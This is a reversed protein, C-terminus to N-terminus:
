NSNFARTSNSFAKYGYHVGGATYLDHFIFGDSDGGVGALFGADKAQISGAVDLKHAPTTSGIGVRQNAFDFKTLTHHVSAADSSSFGVINLSGGYYAGLYPNNASGRAILGWNSGNNLRLRGESANSDLFAHTDDSNSDRVRIQTKVDLYSQPNTTGIGVNGGNIYSASNYQYTYM